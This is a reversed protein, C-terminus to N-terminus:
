LIQKIKKKRIWFCVFLYIFLYALDLLTWAPSEWLLAVSRCHGSIRSVYATTILHNGVSMLSPTDKIVLALRVVACDLGSIPRAMYVIRGMWMQTLSAITKTPGPPPYVRDYPTPDAQTGFRYRRVFLDDNLLRWSYVSASQWKRPRWVKHNSNEHIWLSLLVNYRRQLSSRRYCQM